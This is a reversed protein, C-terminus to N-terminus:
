AKQAQKLARSAVFSEHLSRTEIGLKRCWDFFTETSVGALKACKYAPILQNLYHETIWEVNCYPSPTNTHNKPYKVRKIKLRKVKDKVWARKKNIMRAISRSGYTKVIEVFWERNNWVEQPVPEVYKRTDIFVPLTRPHPKIGAKRKWIRITKTTVQAIKAYDASRFEPYETLWKRLSEPDRTNVKAFEERLEKLIESM